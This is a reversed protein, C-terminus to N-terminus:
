IWYVFVIEFGGSNEELMMEKGLTEVEKEM